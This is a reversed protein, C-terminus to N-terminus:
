SGAVVVMHTGALIGVSNDGNDTKVIMGTGCILIASKAILDPPHTTRIEM